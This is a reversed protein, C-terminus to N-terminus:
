NLTIAVPRSYITQSPTAFMSDAPYTWSLELTGSSPFTEHTDFYGQSSTIPVTDLPSFTTSGAPEFLITVSQPQTPMDLMAYHVPKVAGWVELAQGMVAHTVPLYLPMRWADYGPKPNGQFDLLGSAFGGYDNSALRPLPDRLLYQDFSMVRPNKWTLYESWNDWYAATAPSPYRLHDGATPHPLKPPSTIYGYETIWVPFRKRSHYVSVVRDLAGTLQGLETIGTGNPSPMLEKNPPLGDTYPHDSYGSAAFLAPHMSAFRRTGAANTPCGRLSAATGRLPRYRPDVCYLARLFQLPWMGNFNGLKTTSYTKNRPTLEGIIITDSGHGTAHLASWAADVLLRYYRPSGEVGPHGPLGQPALSPGYTPENYVSWVGVRPLESASGPSVSRTTPDYAGGYRVAVAHVFQGFLAASPEWNHFPYGRQHPMKPGTAWLPAGGALDLDIKIGDAAAARIVADYPAWSRAPYSAPNSGNFNAPRKFSNPKPAIVDWRLLLRVTGAGLERAQMLTQVPNALMQPEDELIATQTSAARAPPACTLTMMAVLGVVILSTAIASVLAARRAPPPAEFPESATSAHILPLIPM